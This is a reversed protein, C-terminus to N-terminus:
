VYFSKAGLQDYQYLIKHRLLARLRYHLGIM